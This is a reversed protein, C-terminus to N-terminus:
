FDPENNATPQPEPTPAPAPQAEATPLSEPDLEVVESTVDMPQHTQTFEEDEDDAAASTDVSGNIIMNCGSNVITKGVMKDTFKKHTTLSKNASQEWAAYIQKRTMVYLDQGGDKCPLYLYAGIFDNDINGLSQEHKLLKRRGTTPDTEYAFDDGAYIVRPYPEWEPFIRKVQLVKGFYSDDACLTTGRCIYYVQKKSADLGKIATKFLAQQVSAPTCVELAPRGNKDKVEQLALVSAKIANVYNYDKPMVFGVQCLEDIRAIVQSGVDTRTAVATTKQQEAMIFSVALGDTVGAM